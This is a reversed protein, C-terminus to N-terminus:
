KIPMIKHAMAHELRDPSWAGEHQSFLIRSRLVQGEFERPMGPWRGVFSGKEAGKREDIWQPALGTTCWDKIRELDQAAEIRGIIKTSCNGFVNYDVSRPSQTCLLCSVGYKRGQTFLRILPEKASPKGVAPIYDRAEDIYLLLNVSGGATQPSTVMWRYIEAALTAVFFQKQDDDTMANLYVVNLPTKGEQEAQILRDIDLQMGGEFLSAAPGAIFNNLKRALKERETKKIVLNPHEIGLAEPHYVAAVIDRLTIESQAEQTLGRLVTFLFTRQSDEEGGVKALGVLNSTVAALIGTKEEARRVPDSIRALEEASPLRTPNLCLRTGHSSGPTFVRTEVLDCYQRYPIADDGTFLSADRQLLFQALDGQPDIAVVPIRHRIAEEAIVKALWTKGSGAAGVVTVHTPLASIPVGIQPGGDGLHGIWLQDAPLQNSLTESPAPTTPKKDEFVPEVLSTPERCSAPPEGDPRQPQTAADVWHSLREGENKPGLRETCTKNWRCSACYIPEGPPKLGTQNHEDYDIWERLSGLFDYMKHRDAYVEEWRKELMQRAPHLYLIGVDAETKHQVNHMLAYVSVQFLDSAPTDSPTLKYDIIRKCGTRWDYFVYDLEGRINIPEGHPGVEFTVDVKHRTDGFMHDVIENAPIGQNIGYALIETLETVYCQLATIFAQQQDGKAKLLRERNVYEAYILSLLGQFLATTGESSHLLERVKESRAAYRNFKEIAQHFLSGLGTVDDGRGVKWIRSVSPRELRHRRTHEADFYAMRPCSAAVRVQSVTLRLPNM